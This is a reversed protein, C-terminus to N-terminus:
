NRTDGMGSGCQPCHQPSGSRSVAKGELHTYTATGTALTSRRVTAAGRVSACRARTNGRSPRQVARATPTRRRFQRSADNPSARWCTPRGSASRLDRNSLECLPLVHVVRRERRPMVAPAETLVARHLISAEARPFSQVPSGCSRHPFSYLLFRAPRRRRRGVPPWVPGARPDAPGNEAGM